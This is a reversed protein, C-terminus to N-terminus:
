NGIFHKVKQFFYYIISAINILPKNVAKELATSDAIIVIMMMETM